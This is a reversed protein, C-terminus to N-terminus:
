GDVRAAKAELNFEGPTNDATYPKPDGVVAYEEGRVVVSAGRLSRSWTKPFHLTYAAEVGSPRDEPLDSTAGPCVLVDAEIATPEGLTPEGLADRAVNPVLVTVRETKFVGM